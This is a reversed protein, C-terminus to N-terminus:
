TWITVDFSEQTPEVVTGEGFDNWTVIQVISSANTMARSLTERLTDGGADGLYGWYNRVGAKQYIDHFRPFASSVSVPWTAAKQDFGALYTKLAASSLVGGMGAAQSM